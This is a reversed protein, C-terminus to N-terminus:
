ATAFGMHSRASEPQFGFVIDTKPVGRKILEDGVLEETENKQVWIKGNKIDFHFLCLHTFHNGRWGIRSLQYHHREKDLMIQTEVRDAQKSFGAAYDEMFAIIATEYKKLKEM